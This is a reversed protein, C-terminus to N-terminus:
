YAGEKSFVVRVTRFLIAVDNLLSWNKVYWTNLAVRRRYDIGNRGSVQWLGTIGPAVQYYFEIQDGYDAVEEPLIPRPGVLSMEGKLVNFLQPLEDLSTRRLFRGITTIRPDNRLKFTLAWEDRAEPDEELLTALVRDADPVMTRFKLAYLVRGARGIRKSPYLVRGGDRRIACWIVLFAPALFVLLLSSALLDFARKVARSFRSNLRNAVFLMMIDHGAFTVPQVGLVAMGITPPVVAFPLKAQRLEAVVRGVLRFDKVDPAVLVFGAGLRRSTAQIKGAADAGPEALDVIGVIGCGFRKDSSLAALTDDLAAGSGVVVTPLPAIGVAALLRRAGARGAM